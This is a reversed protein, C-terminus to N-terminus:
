RIDWHLGDFVAETDTVQAEVFSYVELYGYRWDYSIAFYRIEGSNLHGLYESNCGCDDVISVEVEWPNRNEIRVNMHADPYPHISSGDGACGPGAVLALALVVLAAALARLPKGIAAQHPNLNTQM